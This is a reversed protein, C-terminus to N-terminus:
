NEAADFSEVPFAVAEQLESIDLDSRQSGYMSPASMGFADPYVLTGDGALEKIREM